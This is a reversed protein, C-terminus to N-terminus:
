PILGLRNTLIFCEEDQRIVKTHIGHQGIVQLRHGAELTTVVKSGASPSTYLVTNDKLIVAKGSPPLSQLLLAAMVLTVAYAISKGTFPENKRIKNLILLLWLGFILFFFGAIFGEYTRVRAVILDDFSSSYGSLSHEAATKELKTRVEDNTSAQEFLSLYYLAHAKERLAEKVYAMKLLMQPTYQGTAFIDDEYIKAAETYKKQSFLSDARQLKASISEAFLIHTFASFFILFILSKKIQM